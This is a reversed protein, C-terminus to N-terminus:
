RLLNRNRRPLFYVITFVVGVIVAVWRWMPPGFVVTANFVMFAFVAHLTWFYGRGRCHTDMDGVWWAITDALWLVTFAYNFYVGGGWRFGVLAETQAATHGLARAPSWDHFFEFACIVHTLYLICGITWLWRATQRISRSQSDGPLGIDLTVRGLYCAVALRVSWRTLLEGVHPELVFAVFSTEHILRRHQSSQLRSAVTFVGRLSRVLESQLSNGDVM